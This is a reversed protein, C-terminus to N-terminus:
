QLAMVRFVEELSTVGKAAKRIGDAAMTTMGQGVAITRIEDASAKRLLAERIQANIELVEAIVTRGHYGLQKCHKCGVPKRFSRPLDEMHLGGATGVKAARGLLTSDPTYPKSCHQCLVRVLKQSLVLQTANSMLDPRAGVDLMRILAKAADQAHLSTIVLHGTLAMQMCIELMELTRVEGIAVVDPDSRLIARAASPFTIGEEENVQMQVMWPFYVEIPDEVTMVKLEPRALHQLCCYIVTTKGSGTPGNIIVLGLPSNIAGLLKDRDSPAYDIDDLKALEGVMPMFRVTVSPGLGTPLFTLRIDRPGLDKMEFRLRGFQPTPDHVNCMALTKWQEIVAPLLRIDFEGTPHLVGDVRYRLHVTDKHSDIRKKMPEVHLDSAGLAFGLEIMLKIAQQVQTEAPLTVDKGGLKKVHSELQRILPQIDARLEIRPEEGKLFRDIEAKEFRWQRGVKHGSIKGARLWRYFTPRTTKLLGIAEDMSLLADPAETKASVSPPEADRAPPSTPKRTRPPKQSTKGTKKSAKKASM